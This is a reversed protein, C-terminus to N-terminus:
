LHSRLLKISIRIMAMYPRYKEIMTVDGFIALAETAYMSLFEIAEADDPVMKLRETTALYKTELESLKNLTDKSFLTRVEPDTVVIRIDTYIRDTTALIKETKTLETVPGTSSVDNCGFGLGVLAIIMTVVIFRKM